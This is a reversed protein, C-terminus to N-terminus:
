KLFHKILISIPNRICDRKEEFSDNFMDSNYGPNVSSKREGKNISHLSNRVKECM